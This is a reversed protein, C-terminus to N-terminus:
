YLEVRFHEIVHFAVHSLGFEPLASQRVDSRSNWLALNRLKSSRERLEVCIAVPLQGVLFQQLTDLRHWFDLQRYCVNFLCHLDDVRVVVAHHVVGLEDGRAHVRLVIRLFFM